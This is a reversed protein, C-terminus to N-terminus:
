ALLGLHVWFPISAYVAGLKILWIACHFVFIKKQSGVDVASTLELFLSYYSAQYPLIFSESFLLILFGIIWPNLSVNSALPILLTAFVIVTANIPLVIRVLAISIALVVVFIGPSSDMLVVLFNLQDSLWLHIGTERIVNVMGILSGLFVLFSWDISARFQKQGLFGFMMLYFLIAMAVWAIDLKHLSSFMLGFLLVALGLLGSWEQGTLRGLLQQQSRVISKPVTFNVSNRFMMLNLLLYLVLMVGCVASGAIFWSVWQFSEQVQLPLMGLVIFNVSKSSVFFPSLLSAGHLLNMKLRPGEARRIKQQMGTLIEPLLNAVLTVRGNTTPIFPTLLAGVTFFSLNYWFKRAPGIRLLAIFLRYSLGSSKIVVSLGLIGMALFFSDSSFGSFATDPAAIGMLVASLISFLGTIYDPLLRFMWMVACTGLIASYTIGNDSLDLLGESKLSHLGLFVVLPICLSLAWGVLIGNDVRAIAHSGAPQHIALEGSLRGHFHEVIGQCFDAYQSHLAIFARPMVLVTCAGNAVLGAIYTPMGMVSEEGYFGTGLSGKNPEDELALRGDLIYFLTKARDGKHFLAEGPKLEKIYALGVSRAKDELTSAAFLPCDLLFQCVRGSGDQSASFGYVTEDGAVSADSGM